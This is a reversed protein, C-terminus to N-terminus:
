CLKRAMGPIVEGLVVSRITCTIASETSSSPLRVIGSLAVPMTSKTCPLPLLRCLGRFLCTACTSRSAPSAVSSISKSVASSSRSSMSVARTRKSIPRSAPRTRPAESQSAALGRVPCMRSPYKPALVPAAAASTAAASRGCLTLAITDRPPLGSRALAASCRTFVGVRSSTPSRSEGTM